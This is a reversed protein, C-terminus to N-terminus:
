DAAAAPRQEQLRFEALWDSLESIHDLCGLPRHRLLREREHVGYSVAVSGAGAKRAMDMDYETDGVMLTQEPRAGLEEMLELLMRPHPKSVTEDACRTAGFHAALGTEELVRDLGRRAKGTAVALLYGEERLVQLTERAGPFLQSEGAVQFWHHRYREAYQQAFGDGCGPHLKAIAERLGLGIVDRCAAAPLGDLGMDTHAAQLSAVIQAESDMLTGDWDFVVLRLQNRNM